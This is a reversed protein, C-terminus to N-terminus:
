LIKKKKNLLRRGDSTSNELRRVYTHRQSHDGPQLQLTLQVEYPYLHLDLYLTRWLAGYSLGVDQPCRLIFLDSVRDKM